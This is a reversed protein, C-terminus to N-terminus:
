TATELAPVALTDGLVGLAFCAETRVTLSRDALRELLRPTIDDRGILGAARVAALRVHADAAELMTTLSDLPALRADQWRAIARLRAPRQEADPT